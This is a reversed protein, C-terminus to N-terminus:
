MYYINSTTMRLEGVMEIGKFVKTLRLGTGSDNGLVDLIEWHYNNATNWEFEFADARAIFDNPVGPGATTRHTCRPCCYLTTRLASLL